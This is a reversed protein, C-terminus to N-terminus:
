IGQDPASDCGVALFYINIHLGVQGMNILRRDPTKKRGLSLSLILFPPFFLAQYM